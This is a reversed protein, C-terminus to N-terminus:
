KRTASCRAKVFQKCNRLETNCGGWVLMIIMLIMMMCLRALRNSGQNNGYSIM